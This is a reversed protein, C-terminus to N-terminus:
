RSRTFIKKGNKDRREIEFKNASGINCNYFMKAVEDFAEAKKRMRESETMFSLLKDVGSMNNNM